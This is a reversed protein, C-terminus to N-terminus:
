AEIGLKSIARWIVSDKRTRVTVNFSNEEGDLTLECNFKASAYAYDLENENMRRSLAKGNKFDMRCKESTTDVVTVPAKVLNKKQRCSVLFMLLILAAMYIILKRM